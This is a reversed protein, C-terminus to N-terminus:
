GKSEAPNYDLTPQLEFPSDGQIIQLQEQLYM